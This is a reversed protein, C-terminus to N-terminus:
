AHLLTPCEAPVRDPEITRVGDTREGVQVREVDQVAVQCDVIKKKTIVCSECVWPRAEGVLQPLGMAM